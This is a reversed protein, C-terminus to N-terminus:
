NARELTSPQDPADFDNVAVGVMPHIPVAWPRRELTRMTDEYGAQWRRGIGSTTFDIERLYDDNTRRIPMSGCSQMTTGCGYAAM